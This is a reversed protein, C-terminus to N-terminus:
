PEGGLSWGEVEPIFGSFAVIARPRPRGEGLGVSLAMVAVQSFGGLVIREHKLGDVFGAAASLSSAKPIM